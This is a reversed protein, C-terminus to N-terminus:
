LYQMEGMVGADHLYVGVQESYAMSRVERCPM